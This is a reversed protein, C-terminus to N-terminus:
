HTVQATPHAVLTSEISARMTKLATQYEEQATQVRSGATDTARRALEVESTVAARVKALEVVRDQSAKQEGLQPARQIRREDEEAVSLTADVSSRQELLRSLARADEPLTVYAYHSALAIDDAARQWAPLTGPALRARLVELTRQAENSARLRKELPKELGDKLAHQVAPGLDKDGCGGDALEKQLAASTRAALAPREEDWFGSVDRASERAEAYGESTGAADAESIVRRPLTPEALKIQSVKRLSASLEHARRADEDFTKRAAALLQPYRLAYSSDGASSHLTTQGNPACAGLVLLAICARKPLM